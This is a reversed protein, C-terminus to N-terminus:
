MTIVKAATLMYLTPNFTPSNACTPCLFVDLLFHLIPWNSTRLSLRCQNNPNACQDTASLQKNRTHNFRLKPQDSFTFVYRRNLFGITVNEFMASLLPIVCSSCIADQLESVTRIAEQYVEKQHYQSVGSHALPQCGCPAQNASYQWVGSTGEVGLCKASEIIAMSVVSARKGAEHQASGSVGRVMSTWALRCWLRWIM